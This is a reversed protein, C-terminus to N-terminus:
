RHKKKVSAAFFMIAVIVVIAAVMIMIGNGAGTEIVTVAGVAKMTGNITSNDSFNTYVGYTGTGLPSATMNGVVLLLGGIVMSFVILIFLVKSASM